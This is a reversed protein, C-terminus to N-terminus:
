RGDAQYQAMGDAAVPDDLSSDAALAVLSGQLAACAMPTTCSGERGDWGCTGGHYGRIGELEELRNTEVEAAEWADKAVQVWDRAQAAYARARWYDRAAWARELEDVAQLGRVLALRARMSPSTFTVPAATPETAM